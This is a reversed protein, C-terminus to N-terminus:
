VDVVGSRQQLWLVELREAVGTLPIGLAGLWDLFEGLSIKREGREVRSVASQDLGIEVALHAQTVGASERLGILM